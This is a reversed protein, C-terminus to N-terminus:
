PTFTIRYEIPPNLSFFRILPISFSATGPATSSGGEVSTITGPVSVTLDVAATQIMKRVEEPPAYEEFVWSLMETLEAEAGGAKFIGTITQSVPDSGMPIIQMVGAVNERTIRINIIESGGRSTRTIVPEGGGTSERPFMKEIDKFSLLLQLVAPSEQVLGVLDLGPSGAFGAALAPPTM